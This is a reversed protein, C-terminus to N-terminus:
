LKLLYLAVRIYQNVFSSENDYWTYVKYLRQGNAEVFNTLLSDFVSGATAGIIDTSVLPDESFEFSSSSYTKIRQNLQEVSPTEKLKLTLDVFSGTITPVRLAIGDLKGSLNPVVLGIAKAAGTSTPVINVAAARARRLDSHPADQLRQDATYAHITTMWGESIGFEKDIASVVPAIANTTCSGASIIQDETTLTNENVGFVITKVDSGAPATILVKKAGAELHKTSGIKSAFFGTAEVILDIQLSKWPLNAPDREAFVLCKKDEVRIFGRSQKEIECTSESCVKETAIEKAFKGQSSDYKLLHALTKVDTLDNIAVVEIEPHKLLQRFVLRGIRGFGNIAIRKKNMINDLM